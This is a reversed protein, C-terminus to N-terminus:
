FGLVFQCLPCSWVLRIANTPAQVGTCTGGLLPFRGFLAQDQLVEFSGLETPSAELHAQYACTAGHAVTVTIRSGDFAVPWGPVAGCTSQEITGQVIENPFLCSATPCQTAAGNGMADGCALCSQGTPDCTRAGACDWVCSKDICSYASTASCFSVSSPQRIETCDVGRLCQMAADVPGADSVEAADAENPTADAGPMSDMPSGGDARIIADTMAGADTEGLRGTPGTCGVFL